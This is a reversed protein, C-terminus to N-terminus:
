KIEVVDKHNEKLTDISGFGIAEAVSTNIYVNLDEKFVKVPIDSPSTGDLIQIVMNGTEKGLEEYNIGVTALGGDGVMSDAGVFLPTKSDKTLSSVVDMASAVSNDNPAFIIDAKDILSQTSAQIESTNTFPGEVVSLNNDKAYAKLKDLNSASNAEGSNYLFGVSKTEPYMEIALDMILDVQIEDSTGTINGDPKELDKVLGAGVPDSVASFVVPIEDSFNAAAQASPTAIAIIVDVDQEKFQQCITNLMSQDGGANEYLVEIKGDYTKLQKEAAERITDLSPHEVIQVIGVKFAKDDGSDDNGCGVLSFVFLMSLGLCLLKKMKKEEKYINSSANQHLSIFFVQGRRYFVDLVLTYLCM